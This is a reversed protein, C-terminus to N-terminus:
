CEGVVRQPADEDLSVARGIDHGVGIDVAVNGVVDAAWAKGAVGGAAVLEAGHLEIAGLRGGGDGRQRAVVGEDRDIVKRAFHHAAVEARLVEVAKGGAEVDHAAAFHQHFLGEGGGQGCRPSGRRKWRRRHRLAKSCRPRKRKRKNRLSKHRWSFAAGHRRVVVAHREFALPM